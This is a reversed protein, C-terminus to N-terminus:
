RRRKRLRDNNSGGVSTQLTVNPGVQAGWKQIPANLKDNRADTLKDRREAKSNGVLKHKLNQWFGAGGAIAGLEAESLDLAGGAKANKKMTKGKTAANKTM